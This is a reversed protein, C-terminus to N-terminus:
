RKIKSVCSDLVSRIEARREDEIRDEVVTLISQIHIYVPNADFLFSSHSSALPESTLSIPYTTNRHVVEDVCNALMVSTASTAQTYISHFEHASLALSSSKEKLSFPPPPPTWDVNEEIEDLISDLVAKVAATADEEPPASLQPSDLEPQEQPSSMFNYRHKKQRRLPSHPSMCSDHFGMLTTRCRSNKGGFTLLHDLVTRPGASPAEHHVLHICTVVLSMERAFKKLTTPTRHHHIYPAVHDSKLIAHHPIVLLISAVQSLFLFSYSTLLHM